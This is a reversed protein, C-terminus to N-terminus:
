HRPVYPLGEDILLHEGPQFVHRRKVSRYNRDSPILRIRARGSRINEMTLPTKGVPLGRVYVEASIPQSRFEATAYGRGVLLDSNDLIIPVGIFLQALVMLTLYLRGRNWLRLVGYGVLLNFPIATSAYLDWDRIRLQPYFLIEWGLATLAFVRLFILWGNNRWGRKVTAAILLGAPIAFPSLWWLFLFKDHLHEWSWFTYLYSGHDYPEGMPAIHHLIPEAYFGLATRVSFYAIWPALAVLWPGLGERWARLRGPALGWGFWGVLCFVLFVFYQVRYRHFCAACVFLAFCFVSYVLSRRSTRPDRSQRFYELAVVGPFYFVASGHFAGALTLVVSPWFISLRGGLHRSAFLAFVMVLACTWPYFEIHGCFVQLLLSSSCFAPYLIQDVRAFFIRRALLATAWFFVLGATCSSLAIIDEVWWGTIPRLVRFLYRYGLHALPCRSLTIAFTTKGITQKCCFEGDGNWLNWSRLFWLVWFALLSLGLCLIITWLRQRFHNQM